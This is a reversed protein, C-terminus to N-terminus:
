GARRAGLAPRAGPALRAAVQTLGLVIGIVFSIRYFFFGQDNYGQIAYAVLACVALLGILAQEPDRSKALRCGAIIGCMILGWFATGGLVGMRM